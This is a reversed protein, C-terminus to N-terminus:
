HSTPIIIRFEEQLVTSKLQLTSTKAKVYNYYQEELQNFVLLSKAYFKFFFQLQNQNASNSILGSKNDFFDNLCKEWKGFLMTEIQFNTQPIFFIPFFIIDPFM